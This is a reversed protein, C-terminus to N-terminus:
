RAEVVSLRRDISRVVTTLEVMQGELGEVRNEVNGLRTEVGTLRTEVGTLRTEVGDLRRNVGKLEGTLRVDMNGTAQALDLVAGYVQELTIENSMLPLM